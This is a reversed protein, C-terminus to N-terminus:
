KKEGHKIFGTAPRSGMLDPPPSEPPPPYEEPDPDEEENKSALGSAAKAIGDLIPGGGAERFGNLIEMGQQGMTISKLMGAANEPTGYLSMSIKGGVTAMAKASEIRVHKEAEIQLKSLEFEQAVKGSKERTELEPKVVNEIRDQDIKVKERDVEVPVMEEAKKGDARARAARADADAKKITAEAEADASAKRADAEAKVRYADADAKRQESVFAQEAAAQAQIVAEQKKREATATVSVTQIKQMEEERLAQAKALDAEEANKAKSASAVEKAKAEQAIEAKQKKAIAEIELDRQKQVEAIEVSRQAQITKEKALREQEAAVQAIEAKQKAEANQQDQEFALVKQRTEVDQKKRAQEGERELRNKETLEGQTIEAITRGGKADFANNVNLHKIDTQDLRSITVTELVLGNQKLDDTVAESVEAVFSERDGHLEFLTKKAAVSRLASILKDEVSKKLLEENRMKDGLSRSAQLINTNDPEVRVYFEAGIDVRLHDSTILADENQREVELRLTELSIRIIEHLVPIVLAGGDKIVRAGGAGTRVFAENARSRVYLKTIVFLIACGLLIGGGASYLIIQALPDLQVPTFQLGIPVGVLVIGLILLVVIGIGM